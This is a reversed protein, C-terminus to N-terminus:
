VPSPFPNSYRHNLHSLGPLPHNVLGGLSLTQRFRPWCFKLWQASVVSPPFPATRLIGNLGDTGIGASFKLIMFSTVTLLIEWHGNPSMDLAYQPWAVSCLPVLRKSSINHDLVAGIQIFQMGSVALAVTELGQWFCQPRPHLTGCSLRPHFLPIQPFRPFSM